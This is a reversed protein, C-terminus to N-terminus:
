VVDVFSFDGLSQLREYLVFVCDVVSLFIGRFCRCDGVSDLELEPHLELWVARLSGEERGSLHSSLRCRRRREVRMMKLLM